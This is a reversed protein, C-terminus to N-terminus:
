CCYRLRAQYTLLVTASDSIGIVALSNNSVSGVVGSTGTMVVKIPRKFYHDFKFRRIAAGAAYANAAGENTQPPRITVTKDYLIVFRTVEQLNRYAYVDNSQGADMVDTAVIETNNTQKDWVVCIRSVRDNLPATSAEIAAINFEGKIHISTIYYTRGDRDSEGDGQAVASLCNVTTPNKAAWAGTFAETDLEFDIFKIEDPKMWKLQKRYTGRKRTYRPRKRRMPGPMAAIYADIGSRDYLVGYRRKHAASQQPM